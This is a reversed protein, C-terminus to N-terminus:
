HYWAMVLILTLLLYCMVVRTEKDPSNINMTGKAPLSDYTKQQTLSLIYKVMTTADEKSLQPHATMYHIAGYVQAVQLSRVQSDQIKSPKSIANQLM